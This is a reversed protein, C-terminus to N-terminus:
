GNRKETLDDPQWFQYSRFDPPHLPMFECGAKYWMHLLMCNREKGITGLDMRLALNGHYSNRPAAGRDNM